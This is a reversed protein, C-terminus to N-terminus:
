VYNRLVPAMNVAYADRRDAIRVAEVADTFRQAYTALMEGDEFYMAAEMCAGWLYVDPHNLSLWNTTATSTLAPVQAYYILEVAQGTAQIPSYWFEQGVLAYDTLNGSPQTARLDALQAPTRFTLLTYPSGSIRLSHPALFDTPVASFEDAITATDRQLMRGVRLERGVRAETLAIWQQILAETADTRTIWDPVAAVLGAYTTLSM